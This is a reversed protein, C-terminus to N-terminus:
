GKHPGGWFSRAPTSSTDQGGEGPVPFQFGSAALPLNITISPEEEEQVARGPDWIGWGRGMARKGFLRATSSSEPWGSSLDSINGSSADRGVERVWSSARVPATHDRRPRDFAWLRFSSPVLTTKPSPGLATSAWAPTPSFHPRLSSEFSRRIRGRWADDVCAAYGGHAGM